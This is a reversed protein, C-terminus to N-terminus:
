SIIGMLPQGATLPEIVAKGAVVMNSLGHSPQRLLIEGSYRAGSIQVRVQQHPLAAMLSFKEQSNLTLTVPATTLIM